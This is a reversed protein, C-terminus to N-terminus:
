RARLADLFAGPNAMSVLLQRLVVPAGVVYARQEPELDMQVVGDGSGNVLWKGAWGHVGRTLAIAGRYKSVTAVCKREFTSRFAWGM